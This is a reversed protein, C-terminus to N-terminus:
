GPLYRRQDVQPAQLPRHLLGEAHDLGLHAAPARLPRVQGRQDREQFLHHQRQLPQVLPCAHPVAVGRAHDQAVEDELPVAALDEEGEEFLEAWVAVGAPVQRVQRPQHVRRQPQDLGEGLVVGVEEAELAALALDAAPLGADVLLLAVALPQPALLLLLLVLLAVLLHGEVQVRELAAEAVRLGAGRGAGSGEWGM